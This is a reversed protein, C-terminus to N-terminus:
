RLRTAIQDVGLNKKILLCMKGVLALKLANTRLRSVGHGKQCAKRGKM